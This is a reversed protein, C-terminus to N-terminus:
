EEVGPFFRSWLYFALPLFSIIWLAAGVVPRWNDVYYTAFPGDPDIIRQNTPDGTGCRAVCLTLAAPRSQGANSTLLADLTGLVDTFYGFPVAQTITSGLATFGSVSSSSPVFLYSASYEVQCSLDLSSCTNPPRTEGGGGSPAEATGSVKDTGTGGFTAGGETEIRWYDYGAHPTSCACYYHGTSTYGSDITICAATTAAQCVKAYFVTPGSFNTVVELVAPQNPDWLCLRVYTGTNDNACAPPTTTAYAPVAPVACLVVVFLLVWRRM